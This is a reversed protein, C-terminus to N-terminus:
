NFINRLRNALGAEQPIPPKPLTQPPTAPEVVIIKQSEPTKARVPSDKPSPTATKPEPTMPAAIPTIVRIVLPIPGVVEEAEQNRRECVRMLTNWFALLTNEYICTVARGLWMVPVLLYDCVTCCCSESSEPREIM